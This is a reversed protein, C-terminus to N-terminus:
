TQSPFPLLCGTCGAGEARLSVGKGHSPGWLVLTSHMHTCGERVGERERERKRKRERVRKKQKEVEEYLKMVARNKLHLGEAM